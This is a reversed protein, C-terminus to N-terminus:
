ERHRACGVICCFSLHSFSPPKEMSKSCFPRTSEGRRLARSAGRSTSIPPRRHSRPPTWAAGAAARAALAPVRGSQRNGGSRHIPMHMEAIRPLRFLLVHEGASSSSGCTAVRGHDAHRIGQGCAIRRFCDPIHSFLRPAARHLNQLRARHCLTQLPPLQGVEPRELGRARGTQGVVPKVQRVGAQTPLRHRARRCLIDKQREM